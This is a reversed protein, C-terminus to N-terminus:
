RYFFLPLAGKRKCIPPRESGGESFIAFGNEAFFARVRRQSGAPEHKKTQNPSLSFIVYLILFTEKYAQINGQLSTRIM